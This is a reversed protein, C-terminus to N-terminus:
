CNLFYFKEDSTSSVINVDACGITILSLVVIHITLTVYVHTGYNECICYVHSIFSEFYTNM